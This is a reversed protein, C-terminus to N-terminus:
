GQGLGDERGRDLDRGVAGVPTAGRTGGGTAPIGGAVLLLALLIGALMNAYRNM